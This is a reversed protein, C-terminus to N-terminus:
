DGAPQPLPGPVMMTKRERRAEFVRYLVPIVVLTLATSLLLGGIVPIALPARLEAGEGGILAMPLLGLVTTLTSMLIPRLRVRGAEIIAEDLAYNEERRLVNVYDVLVIANNVVIGALMVIGILAVVSLPTRTIWLAVLAGSLALPISFLIVFPHLFSEFQSAMVLYVLFIALLLALQMSQVGERLERSQGGVTVGFGSPLAIEGMEEQISEIAGGLDRGSPQAGILAVRSGGRRVIEAPAEGFGLTAVAALPVSGGDPTQIRLEALDQLSSRQEETARVRIDLERDRESFETAATGLVRARVADAVQGVSLGLRAVRDRDFQITVEPTGQRREEDVEGIAPLARLRGRVEGAVQNLTALNYGRVEVEVPAAVAFLRPQEVRFAIGPLGALATSLREAVRAEDVEIGQLRIRLTSAHREEDGTGGFATGIGRVGVSAFVEEVGDIDNALREAQRTLTEMRELSTGPAAELEVILEGQDMEPILELGLQPILLLSLLFIAGAVGLVRAPRKVSSRLWRPYREEIWGYGRDFGALPPRLLRAIGRGVREGGRLLAGGGFMLGKGVWRRRGEAFRAPMEAPRGSGRAALMPILTLAVILACILSFSVTWAQDGFLQGAVGRVFVIPLFVAVTTLTSAIVAKGVRSTGISAAEAPTRGKERERAISELVVIASDVLMGVGLALGGLSMINLSIGRAFMLVFTAIVSIPIALAIILTTPLHRLFLLLVAIALLGGIIAASQVDRIAQRIFGSQDSIVSLQVGAPLEERLAEIRERVGDAVQVINATAERLVAVEVAEAGGVRSMTEREAVGRRVVAVDRLLVPRGGPSGIVTAGVEDVDAFENTTRVVYDAAGERLTGGSLNINEAALRAVVQELPIELQALRRQDVEVQIEETLGGTVRVAAVGELGELAREVQEEALLRLAILDSPSEGGTGQGSDGTGQLGAVALRIVPETSPDYRALVPPDADPPLDLLDIRERVALAAFDMDTGWRFTVTVDSQGPRSRSTVQQVGQVVAVAEEVPRSILTEIEQPAVGAYETRITITPFSLDPLLDLPLRRFSVVGFVIVAVYAMAVTVPRLISFDVLKM